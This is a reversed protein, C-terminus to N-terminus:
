SSTPPCAPTGTPEAMPSSSGNFQSPDMAERGLVARFPGPDATNDISLLALTQTGWPTIPLADGLRASLSTWQAPIAWIRAPARGRQARLEGIFAALTLARPGTVNITGLGSSPDTVLRAVGEALDSVHIPQIRANVAAAPLPLVPLQSLRDFLQSSAGGPGYVVSPRLVVGDLEGRTSRELLQRETVLKTHAYTTSGGDIGLASVHVVRRVGAQACAAFLAMPTLLHIAGMPRRSSDRLVGVANVVADIDALRPLWTSPKTDRAFDVQLEGPGPQSSVTGLVEHGATRLAAAIHRGIFGRAGCVLIKM